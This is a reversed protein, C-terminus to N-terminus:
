IEEATLTVFPRAEPQRSQNPLEGADALGRLADAHKCRGTYIGGACSCTDLNMRHAHLFVEYSTGDPKRIQFGRGDRAPLEVLLYQDEQGRQRINLLAAAMGAFREVTATIAVPLKRGKAIRMAYAKM